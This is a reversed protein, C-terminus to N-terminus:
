WGYLIPGTFYSLFKLFMNEKETTIENWGVYGRRKDVEQSSLGQKIDTTVWEDPIETQKQGKKRGKWPKYWKRRDEKGNDDGEETSGPAVSGRRADRYTSIYEVLNTYEDGKETPGPKETSSYSEDSAANELDKEKNKGNHRFHM